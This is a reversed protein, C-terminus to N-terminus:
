PVIVVEWGCFRIEDHIGFGEPAKCKILCRESEHAHSAATGMMLSSGPDTNIRLPWIKEVEFVHDQLVPHAKVVEMGSSVYMGEMQACVMVRKGMWHEKIEAFTPESM